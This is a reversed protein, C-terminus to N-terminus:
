ASTGNEAPTIFVTACIVAVTGILVLSFATIVIAWLRNRIRANPIGLASEARRSGTRTIQDRTTKTAVVIQQQETHADAVAAAEIGNSTAMTTVRRGIFLADREIFSRRDVASKHLEM